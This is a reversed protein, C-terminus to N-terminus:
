ETNWSAIPRNPRKSMDHGQEGHSWLDFGVRQIGPRSVVPAGDVLVGEERPDPPHEEDLLVDIHADGRQPVFRGDETNDYHIPTGWGDVIERVGPRSSDEPSLDREDFKAVAPHQRVESVGGIKREEVVPRSLFYYLAASGYITQGDETRVPSDFGDPPYHGTLGKYEELWLCLKKVLTQTRAQAAKGMYIGASVAVLGFLIVIISVVVLIEVLTFGGRQPRRARRPLRFRIAPRSTDGIGSITPSAQM